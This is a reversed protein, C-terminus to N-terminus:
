KILFLIGLGILVVGIMKALTFQEHFLL